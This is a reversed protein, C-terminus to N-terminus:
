DDLKFFEIEEFESLKLQEIQAKIKDWHEKYFTNTQELAEKLDNYSHELLKKETLTIGNPRSRVYRSASSIRKLVSSEPNRVIGQRKDEKGIFLILIKEIKQSFPFIMQPM